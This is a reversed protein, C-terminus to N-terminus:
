AASESPDKPGPGQQEARRIAHLGERYSPYRLGGPLLEHLRGNAVRKSETARRRAREGGGESPASGAPADLLTAAFAMVEARAAPEDDALNYTADVACEAPAQMSALLAASIDAVHIRSVYRPPADGDDAAGPRAANESLAATAPQSSAAPQLQARRVTDLASRAPGYIGALRFAHSAIGGDERLRLWEQEAQLRPGARSGRTESREDVWGGGHDGYVSTTSLYGAWRLQPARLLEERHLALLPDRDLDAIPPVTALVHTAENLARLGAPELGAYGDDLDFTHADIGASRLADARDAARCSGSVHGARVSPPRDSETVCLTMDPNSHHADRVAVSCRM